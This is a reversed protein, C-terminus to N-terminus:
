KACYPVHAIQWPTTVLFGFLLSAFVQPFAHPWTRRARMVLSRFM